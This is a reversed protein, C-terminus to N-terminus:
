ELHGVPVREEADAIAQGTAIAEVKRLIEANYYRNGCKDCVGITIDNMIVFGDRHKFAERGVRKPRVKGNCYECPYNYMIMEM